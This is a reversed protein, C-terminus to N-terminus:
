DTSMDGRGETKHGEASERNQAAEALKGRQQQAYFQAYQAYYHAYFEANTTTGAYFDVPATVQYNINTYPDVTGSHEEQNNPNQDASV